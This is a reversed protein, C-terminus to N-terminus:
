YLHGHYILFTKLYDSVTFVRYPATPIGLSQLLKKGEIKSWELMAIKESPMLVPIKKSEIISRLNKYLQYRHEVPVILDIKTSSVFEELSKSTTLFQNKFSIPFYKHINKIPKDFNPHYIKEVLPDEAFKEAFHHSLAGSGLILINM